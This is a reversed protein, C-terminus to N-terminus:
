NERRARRRSVGEGGGAGGAEALLAGPPDLTESGESGEEDESETSSDSECHEWVAGEVALDYIAGLESAYQAYDLPPWSAPDALEAPLEEGDEEQLRRSATFLFFGWKLAADFGFVKHRLPVLAAQNLSAAKALDRKVAELVATSEFGTNEGCFREAAALLRPHAALSLPEEAAGDGDQVPTQHLHRLM